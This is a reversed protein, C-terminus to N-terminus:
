TALVGGVLAGLVARPIPLSWPISAPRPDVSGATGVWPIPALLARVGAGLSIHVPGVLVGLVGAFLLAVVGALAWLWPLRPLGQLLAAPAAGVPRSLRRGLSSM